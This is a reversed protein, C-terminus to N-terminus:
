DLSLTKVFKDNPYLNKMTDIFEQKSMSEPLTEFIYDVYERKKKKSWTPNYVGLILDEYRVVQRVPLPEEDTQRAIMAGELIRLKEQIQPVYDQSISSGVKVLDSETFPYFPPAEYGLPMIFAAHSCRCNIWEEIPGSKDGPYMLGNSFPQDVPVIEEDVDLHSKRTRSDHASHWIKYEMGDERMRGYQIYNRTTNIETQAIRRAEYTKLQTFKQQIKDGVDRPGWGESYGRFLIDNIEKNVRAKTKESAEFTYRQLTNAVQPNPMFLQKTESANLGNDLFQRINDSSKVAEYQKAQDKSANLLIDYHLSGIKASEVVYHSLIKEYEIWYNNITEQVHQYFITELPQELDIEALIKSGLYQFFLYLEDSM